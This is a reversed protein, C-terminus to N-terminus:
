WGYYDRIDARYDRDYRPAAGARHSPARELDRPTLDVVYGGYEEDYDLMDWPIPFHRDGVGLVGGFSLVVYEVRGTRKGVMFNEVIGLRRGDVSYVRTGEVKNSAILQDTEDRPLRGHEGRGFSRSEDWRRSGSPGGHFGRRERIEREGEWDSM